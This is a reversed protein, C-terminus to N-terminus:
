SNRKKTTEGDECQTFENRDISQLLLSLVKEQEGLDFDKYHAWAFRSFRDKM